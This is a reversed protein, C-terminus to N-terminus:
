EAISGHGLGLEVVAAFALERDCRIPLHCEDDGDGHQDHTQQDAALHGVSAGVSGHELIQWGNLGQIGDIDIGIGVLHGDDTITALDDKSDIVLSVEDSSASHLHLDLQGGFAREAARFM